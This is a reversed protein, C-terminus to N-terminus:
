KTDHKQLLANHIRIVQIRSYSVEYGIQEWTMGNVYRLRIILRSAADPITDIYREIRLKEYWMKQMSIEILKQLELIDDVYREQKSQDAGGGRPMDSITTTTKESKSRMIALEDQRTEIERNLWYLQSLETKTM